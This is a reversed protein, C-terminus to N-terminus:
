GEELVEELAARAESESDCSCVFAGKFDRVEYHGFVYNIHYM